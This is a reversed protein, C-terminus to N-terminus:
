EPPFDSCTRSYVPSKIKRQGIPPSFFFRSDYNSGREDLGLKIPTPNIQKKNKKQFFFYNKTEIFCLFIRKNRLSANGEKKAFSSMTDM